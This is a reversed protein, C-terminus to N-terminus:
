ASRVTKLHEEINALSREVWMQMTLESGLTEHRSVRSWAEQPLARLTECMKKIHDLFEDLIEVLPEDQNYQTMMWDDADFRKFLPNDEELTRQVRAGYLLKDVSRTHSAIQHVTWDGRLKASPDCSKCDDYFEQASQELREIMKIRYEILEKMTGGFNIFCGAGREACAEAL